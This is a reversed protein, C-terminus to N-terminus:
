IAEDALQYGQFLRSTRHELDEGVAEIMTRFNHTDDAVGEARHAM